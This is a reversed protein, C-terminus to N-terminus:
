CWIFGDDTALEEVEVEVIPTPKTLAIFAFMGAVIGAVAGAGLDNTFIGNWWWWWNKEAAAENFVSLYFGEWVKYSACLTFVWEGIGQWLWLVIVCLPLSLGGSTLSVTCCNNTFAPKLAMLTALIVATPLLKCCNCVTLKLYNWYM